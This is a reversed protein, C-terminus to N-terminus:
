APDPHPENEDTEALAREVFAVSCGAGRLSFRAIHDAVRRVVSARSLDLGEQLGFLPRFIIYHLVQGLISSAMFDLEEDPTRPAIARLLRVLSRQYPWAFGAAVTELAGSPSLAEQLLLMGCVSLEQNDLLRSLSRRLFRVLQRAAAPRTRIEEELLEWGGLPDAKELARKVAALYLDQKSGFHYKIAALNVGAEAVIERIGVAEFGRASFLRVASDLLAERTAPPRSM